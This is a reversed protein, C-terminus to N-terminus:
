ETTDSTSEIGLHKRLKESVKEVSDNDLKFYYVGNIKEDSGDLNITEIDVKKSAYDYFSLMEGFMLNTKMNDGVAEILNGYKNLSGISAAKKIMAEILQQQRKGREIDNDQKRTRAVALAEEGNLHQNGPKLVIANHRDKSDKESMAYPVDFDIDGLSDVIDTFAKFNVKVYYDIPVNFLQEVTEVTAKPGGYAHAHTIKDKKNVEPIYVRSDRPISVLKVTKNTENFTALILADTRASKGFKRTESDDVGMFLISIDDKKPDIKRDRMPSNDRDGLGEYSDSAVTKAKVFLYSGYATASLGLILIPLLFFTFLRRKRKRKNVRKQFRRYQAM